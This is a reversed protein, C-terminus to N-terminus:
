DINIVGDKVTILEILLDKCQSDELTCIKYIAFKCDNVTAINSKVYDLVFKECYYHCESKFMYTGCHADKLVEEGNKVNYAKFTFTRMIKVKTAM